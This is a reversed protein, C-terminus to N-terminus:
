KGEGVGGGAGLSGVGLWLGYQELGLMRISLPIVILRMGRSLAQVVVAVAGSKVAQRDRRHAAAELGCDVNQQALASEAGGTGTEPTSSGCSIQVFETM